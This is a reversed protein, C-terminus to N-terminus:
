HVMNTTHIAGVVAVYGEIIHPNDAKHWTTNSTIAEFSHTLAMVTSSRAFLFVTFIVVAMGALLSLRKCLGKVGYM